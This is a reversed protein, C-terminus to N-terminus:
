LKNQPERRRLAVFTRSARRSIGPTVLLATLALSKLLPHSTGNALLIAAILLTSLCPAVVFIAPANRLDRGMECFTQRLLWTTHKM